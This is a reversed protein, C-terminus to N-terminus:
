GRVARALREYDEMENYAHASVRVWLAGAFPVVPVEIRYDDYLARHIRRATGHDAREEGPLRVCVMSGTMEGPTGTETDWAGALMHGAEIALARNRARLAAGGFSEHFDIAAPVALHATADRTGAWDFATTWGEGRHLSVVLPDLGAQREKASWLFGSGKPACLWKHNNGAYWDAGLAKIDLDLMAPAHAGDVLVPVGRAKCAAVIEAVPMIAATHSTVHDVVVLRTKGTIAGILREAAQEPAELPFPLPAETWIGGRRAAIHALANRIGPYTHNTAVIEDGPALGAAHLVANVASTANDLFVIDEGRAGVFAGLRDAAARLGPPLVNEMFRVPETELKRRLRNQVALVRKPTAGFSGHNLFAVEPDLLWERRVTHGLPPPTESM